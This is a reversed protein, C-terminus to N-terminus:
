KFFLFIIPNSARFFITISDTLKQSYTIAYCWIDFFFCIFFYLFFFLLVANNYVTFPLHGLIKFM